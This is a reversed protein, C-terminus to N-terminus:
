CVGGAYTVVPELIGTVYLMMSVLLYEIRNNKLHCIWSAMQPTSPQEM